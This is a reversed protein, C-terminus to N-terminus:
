FLLFLYALFSRGYWYIQFSPVLISVTLGGTLVLSLGETVNLMGLTAIFFM